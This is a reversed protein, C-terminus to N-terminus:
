QEFQKDYKQTVRRKSELIYFKLYFNKKYFIIVTPKKEVTASKPNTQTSM